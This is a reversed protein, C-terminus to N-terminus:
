EGKNNNQRSVVLTNGSIDTVVVREGARLGPEAGYFAWEQRGVIPVTFRLMGRGNDVPPTIVTAVQGVIAERSMGALTRHEEMQPRFYRFWAVTFAVSAVSWVAIQIGFGLDPAFFLMAAVPFAGLGFWFITFSPVALEAAMLLLGFVIWHWYLITM